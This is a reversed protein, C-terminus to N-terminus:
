PKSPPLDGPQNVMQYGPISARLADLPSPGLRALGNFELQFFLSSSAKDTATPTRQAGVRFVWCDAKYEAGLLGEVIESNPLSYNIRGVAYWRQGVPWQGSVDLQELSNFLDRRYTLNLVKKPAPQWRVGYNARNL